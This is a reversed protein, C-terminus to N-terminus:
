MVCGSFEQSFRVTANAPLTHNILYTDYESIATQHHDLLLIKEAKSAAEDIVDPSYSFDLIYITDGTDFKPFPDGYTAPVYRASDGFQQYAAWASGLGDLCDAHYIVISKNM